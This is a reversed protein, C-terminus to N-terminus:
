LSQSQDCPLREAAVCRLWCRRCCSFLPAASAWGVSRVGGGLVAGVRGLAVLLTWVLLIGRMGVGWRDSGRLQRSCGDRLRRSLHTRPVGDFRDIEMLLVRVIWRPVM